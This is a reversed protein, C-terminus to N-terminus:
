CSVNKKVLAFFILPILFACSCMNCGGGGSSSSTVTNNTTNQQTTNQDTTNQDTTNQQTTTTESFIADYEDSSAQKALNPNQTQYELSTFANLSTADSATSTGPIIAQRLQYATRNPKAALLLAAVGSVHAAAMSTGNLQKIGVGDDTYDSAINQPYTSVIQYGPASINAGKNSSSILDSSQNIASVSIMNHLGPYSAPYVYGNASPQGVTISRNGAAVVIVARNLNDLVKLGRWLADSVTNSYNPARSSYIQLSMNVAAMKMDPNKKLIDIVYNVGNLITASSGQGLSDMCKVPILKVKWNIGTIGLNNNGVAGIIGAVHSGHGSDDVANSTSSLVNKGISTDVNATLDPNTHDIGTDLVAVYIDEGGTTMDWVGPANIYNIGWLGSYTGPVLPDDPLVAVTAKYNPSAAVVDPRQLLESILDETSATDSHLLAFTKNGAQSLEPYTNKVWAGCTTAVSAVRFAESGMNFDSAAITANENTPNLVVIVDGEVYFKEDADAYNNEKTSNIALASFLIFILIKKM